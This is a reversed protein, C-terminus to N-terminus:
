RLLSCFRSSCIASRYGWGTHPGGTYAWLHAEPIPLRFDPQLLSGPIHATNEVWPNGFLELYLRYIGDQSIAAEFDKVSGNQAFYYQVAVTAANMWPDPRVIRGDAQEFEFLKGTRWGYYSNNLENAVWVLQLYLGKHSIDEYGLPYAENVGAMSANTLGGAKYEIFALLVKPNISFNLSVLDVIEAGTRNAQSAYEQYNQLWGEYQAVFATTDFGIASPGNVFESDPIIKFPEGWFTRYYIPIQMPMGDPLTTADPPIFTNAALIEEVTTNFRVALAKLITVQKRQTIWWNVQHM